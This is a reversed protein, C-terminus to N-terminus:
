EGVTRLSHFTNDISLITDIDAKKLKGSTKVTNFPDKSKQRSTNNNKM